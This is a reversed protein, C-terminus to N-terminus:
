PTSLKQSAQHTKKKMTPAPQEAAPLIQMMMAQTATTPQLNNSSEHVKSKLLNWQVFTDM